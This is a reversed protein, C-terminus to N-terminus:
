LQPTIGIQQPHPPAAAVVLALKMVINKAQDLRWKTAKTGDKASKEADEAESLDRDTAEGNEHQERVDNLTELAENHNEVAVAHQEERIGVLHQLRECTEKEKETLCDAVSPTAVLVLSLSVVASLVFASCNWIKRIM